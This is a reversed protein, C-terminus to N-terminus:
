QRHFDFLICLLNCGLACLEATSNEIFRVVYVIFSHLEFLLDLIVDRLTGALAEELRDRALVVREQQGELDLLELLEDAEVDVRAVVRDDVDLLLSEVLHNRVVIREHLLLLRLQLRKDELLLLQHVAVLPPWNESPCFQELLILVVEWCVVPWFHVLHHVPGKVALDLQGLDPVFREATRLEVPELKLEVIAADNTRGTILRVVLVLHSRAASAVASVPSSRSDVLAPGDCSERHEESFALIDDTPDSGHLPVLFDQVNLHLVVAM